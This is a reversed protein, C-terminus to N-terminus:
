APATSRTSPGPSCTARWWEADYADYTECTTVPREITRSDGDMWLGGYQGGTPTARPRTRYSVVHRSIEITYSM